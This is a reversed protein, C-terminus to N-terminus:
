SSVKSILAASISRVASPLAVFGVQDLDTSAAGGTPDVAWALV